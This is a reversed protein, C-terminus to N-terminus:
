FIRKFIDKVMDSVDDVANDLNYDNNTASVNAVQTTNATSSSNNDTTLNKFTDSIKDAAESVFRQVPESTALATLGVAVALTTVPNKGKNVDYLVKAATAAIATGAVVRSQTSYEKGTVCWNAFHECNNTLVLYNNEGLRSYARKVIDENSYCPENPHYRVSVERGDAFEDWSCVSIGEKRLNAIVKNNGVYIGHHYYVGREAVVHTGPLLGQPLQTSSDTPNAVNSDGLDLLPYNSNHNSNHSNM